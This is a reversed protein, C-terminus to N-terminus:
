GRPRAVVTTFDHGLEGSEVLHDELDGLMALTQQASEDGDVFHHAIGGLLWHLLSGGYGRQEVVDFWRPLLPLIDSSRVAESPDTLVVSSLSPAAVELLYSRGDPSVFRRHLGARMRRRLTPWLSGECIKHAVREGRRYLRQIPPAPAQAVAPAGHLTTPPRDLCRYRLPILPIAANMLEVQRTPFQFHSAGVYDTFIFLGGAKLARRIQEYVHELRAFHHLGNFVITVDYTDPAITMTDVNAVHYRISDIGQDSALRRASEVAGPAIDYADAQAFVGARALDREFGGEGCALILCRGVPMRGALHRAITGHMWDVREDDTVMRNIRRRVAPVQWWSTAEAGDLPLSRSESWHRAVRALDLAGDRERIEISSLGPGWPLIGFPLM